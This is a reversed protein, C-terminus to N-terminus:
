DWNGPDAALQGEESPRMIDAMTWPEYTYGPPTNSNTFESGSVVSNLCAEWNDLVYQEPDHGNIWEGTATAFAKPNRKAAEFDTTHWRDRNKFGARQACSVREFRDAM